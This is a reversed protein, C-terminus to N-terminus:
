SIERFSSLHQPVKLRAAADIFVFEQEFLNFTLTEWEAYLLTSASKNWTDAIRVKIISAGAQFACSAIMLAPWVFEVGSLM